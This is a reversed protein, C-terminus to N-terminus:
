LEITKVAEESGGQSRPNSIGASTWLILPVKDHVINMLLGKADKVVDQALDDVDRHTM